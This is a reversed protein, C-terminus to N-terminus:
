GCPHLKYHVFCFNCWQYVRAESFFGDFDPFVIQELVKEIEPKKKNKSTKKIFEEQNELKYVMTLTGFCHLKEDFEAKSHTEPHSVIRNLGYSRM